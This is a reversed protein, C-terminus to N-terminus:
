PTGEALEIRADILQSRISSFSVSAWSVLSTLRRDIARGVARGGPVTMVRLLNRRGQVSLSLTRNTESHRDNRTGSIKVFGSGVRTRAFGNSKTAGCSRSALALSRPQM